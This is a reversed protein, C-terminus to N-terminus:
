DTHDYRTESWQKIRQILATTKVDLANQADTLSKMEARLDNWKDM